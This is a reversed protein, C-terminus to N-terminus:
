RFIEDLRYSLRRASPWGTNIFLELAERMIKLCETNQQLLSRYEALYTTFIRIILDIAMQEYQYGWAKSARIITGIRLFVKEPDRSIFMELSQTLSHALQTEGIEALLDWSQGVARYLWPQEPTTIEPALQFRHEQFAGLAFYLEKGLIRVLKILEVFTEADNEPLEENRARTAILPRLLATSNTVLLNFIRVSRERVSLAQEASWDSNETAQMGERLPFLMKRAEACSQPLDTALRVIAAEATPDARWIYYRALSQVCFRTLESAGEQKADIGDLILTVLSLARAPHARALHDLHIVAALRVRTSPDSAFETLMEWMKEPAHKYLGITASAIQNRVVASPDHMLKALARFVPQSECRQTAVLAMLGEAAEVRGTPVGWSGSNDYQENSEPTSQPWMTSAGTLLVTEVFQNLVGNTHLDEVRAIKSVAQILLAFSEQLINEDPMWPGFTGLACWLAEMDAILM